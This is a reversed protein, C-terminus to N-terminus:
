SEVSIKDGDLLAAKPNLVVQEGDSLGDLVQYADDSALGLTVSRKSVTREEPDYVFVYNEGDETTVAAM